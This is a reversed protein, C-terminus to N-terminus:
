IMSYHGSAGFFVASFIRSWWPAGLSAVAVLNNQYRVPGHLRMTNVASSTTRLKGVGCM